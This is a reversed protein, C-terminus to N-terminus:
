GSSFSFVGHDEAIRIYRLWPRAGRIQRALAALTPCDEPAPPPVPLSGPKLLAAAPLLLSAPLTAHIRKAHIAEKGTHRRPFPVVQPEDFAKGASSRVTDGESVILRASSLERHEIARKGQRARSPPVTWRSRM